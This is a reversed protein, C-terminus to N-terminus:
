KLRCTDLSSLCCEKMESVADLRLFVESGLLPVANAGADKHCKELLPKNAYQVAFSFVVDFNSLTVKKIFYDTIAEELQGIGIKHM